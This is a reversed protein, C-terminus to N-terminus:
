TARRLEEIRQQAFELDAPRDQAVSIAQEFARIADVPRNHKALFQGLFLYNDPTTSEVAVAQRLQREAEELKGAKEYIGSLARELAAPKARGAYRRRVIREAARYLHLAPLLDEALIMVVIGGIGKVIAGVNKLWQRM